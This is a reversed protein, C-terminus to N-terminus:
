KVNMRFCMLLACLYHLMVPGRHLCENLSLNSQKSKASADYVVRVKTTPDIVAHHPIYHKIGTNESRPPIKEIIGKKCQDQIIEDYKQLFDPKSQMKHVLSKLRGYALERNEPLEPCSNKWPWTVHYRNNAIELTSNFNRMAEEDDSTYPSDKIGVTELNRFDELPPKVPLCRDASRLCCETISLLGNAIMM